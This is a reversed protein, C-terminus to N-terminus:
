DKFKVISKVKANDNVCNIPYHWLVIWYITYVIILKCKGERERKDWEGWRSLRSM